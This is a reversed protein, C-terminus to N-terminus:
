SATPSRSALMPDAVKQRGCLATLREVIRNLTAGEIRREQWINGLEEPLRELTWVSVMPNEVTVTGEPDAWVVVPNVWQRIGNAQFFSALRAANDQVQRSPSKKLLAWRRGVRRERHEGINRYEGGFTKVELVWVGPPGVLVLDLDTKRRGPLVINRFLTWEGDLSQRMAEVVREEGEQGKRYAEAKQEVQNFIRDLLFRPLWIALAGAALLILLALIGGPSRIAEAFARGAEPGPLPLHTITWIVLAVLGSLLIGLLGGELMAMRLEGRQAFSRGGSVVKLPGAPPPPEKVVQNLQRALLVAAARRAREDWAEEVAYALDKLGLRRTDVLPGMPQGRYPRFPWPTARAQEVTIGADLAPVSEAPHQRDPPAKASSAQQERLWALLVAAAEKLQPNYAWKAAWELRKEDLFGEDLLEGLPRPNGRLWRVARAEALGMKGSGPKGTLINKQDSM